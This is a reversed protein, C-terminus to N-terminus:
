HRPNESRFIESEPDIWLAPRVCGDGANVEGTNLWGVCDVCAAYHQFLGPSRLWWWGAPMGGAAKNSDHNWAGRTIAYATPAARSRIHDRDHGNVDLYRDAEAYSLLFVQDQTNSGGDTDWESYGQAASNDVEAAQIAKQEEPTFAANLFDNNLWVRLSCTEWTVDTAEPNYPVSDLGYRSLVLAKGDRVELVFWEVPTRDTGEAAQPYHGFTIIDGARIDGTEEAAALNMFLLVMMMALLIALPKKM